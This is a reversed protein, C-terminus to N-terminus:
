RSSIYTCGLSVALKLISEFNTSHAIEHKALWCMCKLGGILAQRQITRVSEFAETIDGRLRAQLAEWKAKVADGHSNSRVRKLISDRRLSLCPLTIWTGNGNRVKERWKQCLGCFM